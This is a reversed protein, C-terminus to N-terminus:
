AILPNPPSAPVARLRRTTERDRLEALEAELAACRRELAVIDKGITEAIARAMLRDRRDLQRSIYSQWEKTFSNAPAAAARRVPAPEPQPKSAEHEARRLAAQREIAWALTEERKIL